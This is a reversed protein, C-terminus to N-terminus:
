EHARFGTRNGGGTERSAGFRQVAQVGSPVGLLRHLVRVSDAVPASSAEEDEPVSFSLSHTKTLPGEKTDITCVAVSYSPRQNYPSM